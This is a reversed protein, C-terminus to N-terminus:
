SAAARTSATWAMAAILLVALLHFGFSVPVASLVGFRAISLGAVAPGIVTGLSMFAPSGAVTRGSPDLEALLSMFFVICFQGGITFLIEGSAFGVLKFPLLVLLTSTGTVFLALMLPVRRGYRVGLVDAAVPGLLACLDGAAIVSVIIALSLGRAHGIREFYSWLSMGGAMFLGYACLTSLIEPKFEFRRAVRAEPGAHRPLAILIVFGLAKLGILLAFVGKPGVTDIALPTLSHCAVGLGALAFAIIAFSRQVNSTGAAAANVAALVVGEGVGGFSRAVTLVVMNPALFSGLEGLLALALGLYALFRRDARVVFVAAVLSAIGFCAFEMSAVFGAASASVNWNAVVAGVWFPANVLGAYGLFNGFALSALTAVRERPRAPATASQSGAGGVGGEM